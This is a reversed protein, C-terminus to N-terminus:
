DRWGPERGEPLLRATARQRERQHGEGLPPPARLLLHPDRPAGSDAAGARVGQGSPAAHPEDQPPGAPRLRAKGVLRRPLNGHREGGSEPAGRQDKGRDARAVLACREPNSMLSKRHCRRRRREHKRQAAPARYCPVAGTASSNRVLERSVTPKDRGITRAIERVGKHQRALLM